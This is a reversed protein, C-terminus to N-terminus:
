ASVVSSVWASKVGTRSRFQTGTLTSTDGQSSTGTIRAIAQDKGTTFRVSVVDKLNFARAMTTQSVTSVWSANPNGAASSVSYPDRKSTLYAVSNGWVDAADRTSGGSSSYYTADAVLNGYWISQAQTPTGSSNKTLTADVAKVWRDGWRTSGTTESEKAWGTFKQSRIEDWVHCDCESKVSATQRLAYSRSALAQAQLAEAPWSSPMEAIGYLYEDNLRLETILNVKGSVVTAVVRGHALTLPRSGGDGQPITLTGSPGSLWYRTGGWEVNATEMAHKNGNGLTALVRRSNNPDVTLRVPETTQKVGQATHIRLTNSPELRISDASLVHVRVNNGARLSSARVEAPGYYHDIIQESSKGGAAMARAGYQSMGVGHGWGSGTVTFSTNRAAKRTWTAITKTGTLGHANETRLGWQTTTGEAM